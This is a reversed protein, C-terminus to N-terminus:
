IRKFEIAWVWPNSSWPYKKGNISDWLTRYRGVLTIASTREDDKLIGETQADKGSMVQLREVRVYTIELTIRSYQRLMFISPVIRYSQNHPHDGDAVYGLCDKLPKPPAYTTERVWLHDGVIGYPCSYPFAGDAIAYPLGDKFHHVMGLKVVRRTQTKRGELIARVM